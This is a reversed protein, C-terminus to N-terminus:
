RGQCRSTRGGIELCHCRKIINACLYSVPVPCLRAFLNKSPIPVPEFKGHWPSCVFSLNTSFEHVQCSGTSHQGRKESHASQIGPLTQSQVKFQSSRLEVLKRAEDM